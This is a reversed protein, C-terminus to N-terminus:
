KKPNVLGCKVHIAILLKYFLINTCLSYPFCGNTLWKLMELGWRGFEEHREYMNM